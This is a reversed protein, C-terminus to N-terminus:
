QRATPQVLKYVESADDIREFMPPSMRSMGPWSPNNVVFGFGGPTGFIITGQGNNSLELSIEPLAKLNLAKLSQSFLGALILAREDTLAYVTNQRVYMDYVFRGFIFFLGAIVFVGGFLLFFAPAGSDYARYEWFVAFGGWLLSFPVLFGDSKRFLIGTPPRGTWTIRESPLLYPTMSQQDEIQTQNGTIM